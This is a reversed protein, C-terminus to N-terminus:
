EESQRVVKDVTYTPAFGTSRSETEGLTGHVTVYEGAKYGELLRSGLLVVSGGFDDTDGDIPIYRLKWRDDSRTYELRGKLWRYNRDADYKGPSITERRPTRSPSKATDRITKVEEEYSARTV